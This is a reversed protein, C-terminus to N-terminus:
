WNPHLKKLTRRHTKYDPDISELLQWFKVSHNMHRTHCLEHIIVYDILAHDLQMLWVNLSITGRTSCSGWRTSASSFCLSEFSCGYQNALYDLRRPLYAKAEVRLTKLALKTVLSQVEAQELTMHDPLSVIIHPSKLKVKLTTGPEVRIQHSSGVQQGAYFKLQKTQIDNLVTRLSERSVDLLEQVHRLAARRPITASLSGDHDIKLRVHKSSDYRRVTITGFEEDSIITKSTNM